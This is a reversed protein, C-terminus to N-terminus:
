PRKDKDRQHTRFHRLQEEPGYPDGVGGLADIIIAQDYWSSKVKAKGLAPAAVLAAGGAMLTRRDIRM